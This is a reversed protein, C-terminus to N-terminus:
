KENKKKKRPRENDDDEDEGEEEEEETMREIWERRRRKTCRCVWKTRREKHQILAVPSEEILSTLINRDGSSELLSVFVFGSSHDITVIWSGRTLFALTRTLWKEYCDIVSQNNKVTKDLYIIYVRAISHIRRQQKTKSMRAARRGRHTLSSMIIKKKWEHREDIRLDKGHVGPHLVFM